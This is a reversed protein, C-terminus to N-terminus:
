EAVVQQTDHHLLLLLRDTFTTLEKRSLNDPKSRWQEGFAGMADRWGEDRGADFAVTVRWSADFPLELQQEVTETM